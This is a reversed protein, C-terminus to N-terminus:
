KTQKTYGKTSDNFILITNGSLMRRAVVISDTGIAKNIAEVVQIPIRKALNNNQGPARIIVEQTRHELIVVKLTYVTYKSSSQIGGVAVL